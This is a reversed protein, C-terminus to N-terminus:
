LRLKVNKAIPESLTSAEPSANEDLCVARVAALSVSKHCMMIKSQAAPAVAKAVTAFM